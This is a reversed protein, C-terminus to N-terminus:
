CTIFCRFMRLEKKALRKFNWWMKKERGAIDGFIRQPSKESPPKTFSGLERTRNRPCGLSNEIFQNRIIIVKVPKAINNHASSWPVGCVFLCHLMHREELLFHHWREFVVMGLFCSPCDCLSNKNRSFSDKAM